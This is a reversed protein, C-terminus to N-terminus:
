NDRVLITEKVIFMEKGYVPLEKKLLNLQEQAEKYTRFDGVKLRWFPASYGV